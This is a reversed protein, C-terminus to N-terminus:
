PRVGKIPESLTFALRARAVCLSKAVAGRAIGLLEAIEIQDLGEYYHLCFVEAERPPLIRLALRLREELEDAIAADSPQSQSRDYLVDPLSENRKTRRLQDLSRCVAMRRLLGSWRHNAEATWRQFAEVFVEQAVDEADASHGLVRLAANLVGEAEQRVLTEWNQKVMSEDLDDLFTASSLRCM